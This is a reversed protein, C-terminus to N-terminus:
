LGVPIASYAQLHYWQYKVNAALCTYRQPRPKSYRSLVSVPQETVNILSPDSLTKEAYAFLYVNMKFVDGISANPIDIIIITRVTIPTM